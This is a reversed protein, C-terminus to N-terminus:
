TNLTILPEAERQQLLIEIDEKSYFKGNDLGKCGTKAQQWVDAKLMTPWFPYLRCQLPRVEYVACGNSDASWFICDHNTKETLSLRIEDFYHVTRCFNQLLSEESLNLHTTLKQLDAKSLFVYGAEHRCCNSCATCSFSLGNQIFKGM